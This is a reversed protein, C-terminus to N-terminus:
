LLKNCQQMLMKVTLLSMRVLLGEMHGHVIGRGRHRIM